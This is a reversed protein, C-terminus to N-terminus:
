EENVSKSEFHRITTNVYSQMIKLKELMYDPYIEETTAQLIAKLQILMDMMDYIMYEDRTQTDELRKWVLRDYYNTIEVLTEYFDQMQNHHMSDILEKDIAKM